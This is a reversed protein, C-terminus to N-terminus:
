GEKPPEIKIVEADVITSEIKVAKGRLEKQRALHLDQPTVDSDDSDLFLMRTYVQGMESQTLAEFADIQDRDLPASRAGPAKVGKAIRSMNQFWEVSDATYVDIINKRVDSEMLESIMKDGIIRSAAAVYPSKAWMQLTERSQGTIECMEDLYNWGAKRAKLRADVYRIAQMLQHMVMVDDVNIGLSRAQDIYPLLGQPIEDSM